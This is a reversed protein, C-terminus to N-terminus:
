FQFQYNRTLGSIRIMWLSTPYCQPIRGIGIRGSGGFVGSLSLNINTYFISSTPAFRFYICIESVINESGVLCLLVMM